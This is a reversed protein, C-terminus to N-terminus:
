FRIRCGWVIKESDYLNGKYISEKVIYFKKDINKFWIKKWKKKTKRPIRKM